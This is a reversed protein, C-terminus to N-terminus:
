GLGPAVIDRGFPEAQSINIYVCSRLLPVVNAELLMFKILLREIVMEIHSRFMESDNKNYSWLTKM